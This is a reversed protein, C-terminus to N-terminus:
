HNDARRSCTGRSGLGACRSSRCSCRDRTSRPALGTSHSLVGTVDVDDHVVSVHRTIAGVKPSVRFPQIDQPHVEGTPVCTPTHRRGPQPSPQLSSISGLQHLFPTPPLPSRASRDQTYSHSGFTFTFRFLRSSHQIDFSSAASAVPSQDHLRARELAIPIPQSQDPLCLFSQSRSSSVPPFARQIPHQPFRTYLPPKYLFVLSGIPGIAQGALVEGDWARWIPRLPHAHARTHAQHRASRIRPQPPCSGLFFTRLSSCALSVRATPARTHAATTHTWARTRYSAQCQRAPRSLTGVNRDLRAARACTRVLRQWASHAVSACINLSPPLISRSPEASFVQQASTDEGRGVAPVSAPLLTSYAVYLCRARHIRRFPYVLTACRRCV